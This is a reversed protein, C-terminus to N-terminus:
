KERDANVVVLAVMVVSIAGVIFGILFAVAM